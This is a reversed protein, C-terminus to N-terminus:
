KETPKIEISVGEKKKLVEKSIENLSDEERSCSVTTILLIALALLKRMNFNGHTIYNM